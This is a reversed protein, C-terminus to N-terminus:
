QEYLATLQVFRRLHFLDADTSTPRLTFTRDALPSDHTWWDETNGWYVSGTAAVTMAHGSGCPGHDAAAPHSVATLSLLVTLLMVVTTIWRKAFGM